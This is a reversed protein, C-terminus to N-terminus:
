NMQKWLHIRTGYTNTQKHCAECLTRGNDIALRLEPYLSFPKIHDAELKITKGLGKTNKIGCEQCTWYDRAFVAERWIRYEFSNRIRTAEDTKGGKWSHSESGKKSNNSRMIREELSAIRGRTITHGKKFRNEPSNCIGKRVISMWTARCAISCLKGNGRKVNTSHAIFSKDCQICIRQIKSIGGKWNPNKEKILGKGKRM